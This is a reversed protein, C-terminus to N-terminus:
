VMMQILKYVYGVKLQLIIIKGLTAGRIHVTSLNGKNFFMVDCLIDIINTVSCKTGCDIQARPDDYFFFKDVDKPVDTSNTQIMEDNIDIADADVAM